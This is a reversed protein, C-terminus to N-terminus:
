STRKGNRKRKKPENDWVYVIQTNCQRCITNSLGHRKVRRGRSDRCEHLVKLFPRVSTRLVRAM